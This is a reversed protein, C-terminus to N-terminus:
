IIDLYDSPGDDYITLPDESILEEDEVLPELSLSSSDDESLLAEPLIFPEPYMPEEMTDGVSMTGIPEGLSAYITDAALLGPEETPSPIYGDGSKDPYARGYEGMVEDIGYTGAELAVGQSDYPILLFMMSLSKWLSMAMTVVTIVAMIVVTIVVTTAVTTVAVTTVVM